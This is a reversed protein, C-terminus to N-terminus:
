SKLVCSEVLDVISRVADKESAKKMASIFIDKKSEVLQIAEQLSAANVKEEPLVYSYGQKEFSQANLLQDGRSQTAPLPILINPKHLALFEFIANAGARSIIISSAAFLDPLETGIYEYQVYGVTNKLTEDLNGKGCLHILQYNELLAPLALRIAENIAVSGISGGMILLIPKKDSLGTFSLGADKNGNFLTERIPSGTHIGKDEPLMSLTEPFSCCIHKAFHFSIKNALGPTFDSEHIVVPVNHRKSSIVVPVSVYGGKSFIVDPRIFRLLRDADALGKAVRFVDTVNKADLYRRLKGTSIAYYPIGTEAILDKEIGNKSGIYSIDYGLEKLRGILAINPNVHGATGGGTLVIRKM